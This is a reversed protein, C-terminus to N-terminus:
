KARKECGDYWSRFVDRQWPDITQGTLSELEAVYAEFADENAKRRNRNVRWLM